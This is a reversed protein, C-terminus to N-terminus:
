IRNAIKAVKWYRVIDTLLQQYEVYDNPKTFYGQISLEYSKKMFETNDGSTTLFVYPVCKDRLVPNDFVVQRIQFGNLRPMNIDSIILFPSEPSDTLYKIAEEGNDFVVVKNNYKNESLVIDFVEQIVELDERDDDIIIIEGDLNM